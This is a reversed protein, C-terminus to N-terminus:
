LRMCLLIMLSPLSDGSPWPSTFLPESLGWGSGPVTKVGERCTRYKSVGWPPLIQFCFQLRRLWLRRGACFPVSLGARWGTGTIAPKM